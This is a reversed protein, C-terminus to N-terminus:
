LVGVIWICAWFVDGWCHLFGVYSNHDDGICLSYSFTKLLYTTLISYLSVELAVCCSFLEEHVWLVLVGLILLTPYYLTVLTPTNDATLFVYPFCWPSKPSTCPAGWVVREWGHACVVFLVCNWLCCNWCWQSPLAPAPCSLWPLLRCLPLCDLM